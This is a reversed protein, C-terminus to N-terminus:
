KESSYALKMVLVGGNSHFSGGTATREERVPDPPMVHTLAALRGTESLSKGVFDRELDVDPDIKHTISDDRQDREFGIDHTAAGVWVPLGDATLSSKWLRLHHRNAIVTVPDAHAFGYDQARGFLFLESMPMQVYSEKSLSALISHLIATDADSDVKVWGADQFARQIQQETGILLFNTIDGPNGNKDSVRRPIKKLFDKTVAPISAALPPPAGASSAANAALEIHVTFSGSAWDDPQHNIGIFLRGPRRAVLEHRAGILFPQAAEIDGVRGILAGRGAQNIPLIRLLDKFSRPLGEPGSEGGGLYEVAGKGTILVKDGPHLDIGTDSWSQDGTIALEQVTHRLGTAISGSASKRSSNPSQSNTQAAVSFRPADFFLIAFILFLWVRNCSGLFGRRRLIKCM